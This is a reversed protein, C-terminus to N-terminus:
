SGVDALRVPTDGITATDGVTQNVAYRAYVTRWVLRDVVIEYGALHLQHIQNTWWISERPLFLHDPSGHLAYPTPGDIPLPHATAPFGGREAHYACAWSWAGGLVASKPGVPVKVLGQLYPLQHAAKGGLASAVAGPTLYPASLKRGVFVDIGVCANALTLAALGVLVAPRLWRATLWLLFPLSSLAYAPKGPLFVFVGVFLLALLLMAISATPDGPRAPDRRHYVVHGVALLTALLALSTPFGFCVFVLKYGWALIADKLTLGMDLPKPLGHSLLIPLWVITVVVIVAGATGVWTRWDRIRWLILQLPFLVAGCLVFEPRCGTALAFLVISGTLRGWRPVSGGALDLLSVAGLLFLLGFIFEDGDVTQQFFQPSLLLCILALTAGLRSGSGRVLWGYFIAGTIVAALWQLSLFATEAFRGGFAHELLWGASGLLYIESVPHGPPRSIIIEHRDLLGRVSRIIDHSDFSGTGDGVTPLVLATFGLLVAIAWGHSALRAFRSHAPASSLTM